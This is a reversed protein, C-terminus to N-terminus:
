DKAKKRRENVLKIMRKDKEVLAKTMGTRRNKLDKYVESDKLWDSHTGESLADFPIKNNKQFEQYVKDLKAYANEMEEMTGSEAAKICNDELAELEAVIKPLGAVLHEGEKKLNKLAQEREAEVRKRNQKEWEERDRKM